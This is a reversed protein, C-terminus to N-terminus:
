EPRAPRLSALLAGFEGSALYAYEAERWAAIADDPAQGLAPHCNILMQPAMNHLWGQYYAHPAVAANFAHLGRFYPNHAIGARRLRARFGLAMINLPLAKSLQAQGQLCAALNTGSHRVTCGYEKALELTAERIIPFCHAHQHGDIHQPPHGMASIFAAMQRQAEAMIEAADLRRLLALRLLRRLAPLRGAPALHPMVGLPALETFTLHLGVSFLGAFPPAAPPQLARLKLASQPWTAGGTMCSVANIRGQAALQIIAQDIGATLGYDDACLIFTHGMGAGGEAGGARSVAEAAAM